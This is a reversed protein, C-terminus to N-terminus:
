ACPDWNPVALFRPLLEVAGRNFEALIGHLHVWIVVGMALGAAIGLPLAGVLVQYLQRALERPHLVSVPAAWLARGAFHLSHGLNELADLLAM